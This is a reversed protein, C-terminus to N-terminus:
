QFGKFLIRMDDARQSILTDEPNEGHLIPALQVPEINVLVTLPLDDKHPDNRKLAALPGVMKMAPSAALKSWKLSSFTKSAGSHTAAM